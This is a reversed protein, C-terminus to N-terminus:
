ANEKDRARDDTREETHSKELLPRLYHGTYSGEVRAVYEPTGEAVVTGGGSGGEPGMDVIWDAAKIVDLNHEIILVSNGKDVLGQIVLMLKRIDEFHLGTTPEDLIYITRGNSRKQLEAALKVRQAEGGSLTTAAQGLRVYGLGVDVLTNLYRSISTVPEFFEAADTIPLDLVEAINKGKYTVELTERNYRAGQCVECPVYVDPLFNMEIKLTGDGHCAECRGGKVNFSFRGPGYGRVKAETTEAFLKRIKDFVGTYTAPNSRPTRGIPSQDVQVLKDLHELGDVRKHHGPVVRSRNLNNALVKALIGNVLSSKGSGSVGTVVTLVGLPFSVDVGKLNNEEAGRVSLMRERDVERRSSPVALVKKGSLYHGTVSEECELIGAPAGQYVVEGGFEGARPGIDVLWDATRITDEDHEVVILTNGLDRLHELTHILRENDRQHLGISPEDLVYLVGALGSGIQTALRIRQAEGGSLTGASRSMSLYNLGVDLLFRLRAQIERLVAGAIMEERKNLTLSNLFASADSISLDALEAISLRREGAAITVALVEPKLRAGGCSSCPVERMYSLYREKSAESDTQDLKRTLFPMVGEFPATYNRGRGYRNRFNVTIKTSHGKLIAKKHAASLDSYPAKPDFGLEKGLAALLKEFYKSNPSGAWPAIAKNLPADEDPIVLKEDVELATGLGDCTPCAGYPSNFSFTRPELEDLALAHGNPCAMKESFRRYRVPDKEDLSVFDLVVIGDALNLATEISDTLRQKQSPKVQLRDVVVDIDHKVQKELKPPNSLQHVEGDVKVRSYGQSALDEFLDVFEGKRTRVVPALVQFKLGEEMQLIQDVIEQPTQRQIVEGCQPCHPTGTRAYLLRLYDFIETVTGVTSRPNRNTSKQDISVAPSLGEILEVDPKDMRGLFMRAYSSLSEVYRRQGEAFITDFALSSKGSGSLGTFVIMKDRPLDIDVGKLNHERAGRVILQDAM